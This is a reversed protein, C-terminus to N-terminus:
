AKFNGHKNRMDNYLFKYFYILEKNSTPNVFVFGHSGEFGTYDNISVFGMETFKKELAADAKYYEEDTMLDVDGEYGHRLAIFVDILYKHSKNEYTSAVLKHDSYISHLLRLYYAFNKCIKKIFIGLIKDKDEGFEYEACHYNEKLIYIHENTFKREYKNSYTDRICKIDCTFFDRNEEYTNDYINVINFESYAVCGDWYNDSDLLIYKQYMFSDTEKLKKLSDNLKDPSLLVFKVTNNDYAIGVQYKTNKYVIAAAGPIFCENAWNSVPYIRIENM